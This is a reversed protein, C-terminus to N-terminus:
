AAAHFRATWLATRTLYASRAADGSLGWAGDYGRYGSRDEAPEIQTGEGWENYSTISIVDPRAAIAATWLADYTAGNRRTRRAPPEGARRGDYGPGVSPACLLALAHAQACLRAFKGGSWTMFDYTYVGDFAAAKAFGVKVTGALLRMTPPVYSRVASWDAATSDRPHYVYVDRVGFSALYSLDAVVSAPSRGGYPELHIGVTLGHRRAVSVVLPLRQDETSGRGWWSVVVEDVGAQVIQTMQRDVVSPDSSSYPGGAPYFLSYLDTPPRHTNQNWHEWLGDTTPTGYWPYYFIAVTGARACAPACLSACALGVVLLRRLM